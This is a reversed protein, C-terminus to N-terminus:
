IVWTETELEPGAYKLPLPTDVPWRGVEERDRSLTIYSFLKDGPSLELAELTVQAEAIRAVRYRCRAGSPAWGQAGKVLLEGEAGGVEMDLRFERGHILHLSLVDGKRFIRDLSRVGDIRLFLHHRDFGYFFSQLLSEAAHMASFYKTLDFLGAALWEFYDTVIGTIQPTILAAPERVLGAPSEKKIAEFLEHPVDIGLLRYVAMLHRRFLLDFIGSHASFHDDGYWWFWDSGQAAYLERVVEKATPDASEGGSLLAAAEPSHQRAAERAKAVLDWALNEEPHGVWIGYNANIWSGPHIGSLHRRTPVRELAESLTALEVGPTAAVGEYLRTLFPEGNEPYYEWANEGDMIIPLVTSEPLRQRVERVRSLFDAV